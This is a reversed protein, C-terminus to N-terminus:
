AIKKRRRWWGLLGGSVLILGPLGAGAIPGPVPNYGLAELMQFEPSATTFPPPGPGFPPTCIAWSQIECPGIPDGLNVSTLFDGFDGRSDQNFQATCTAGGDVSLCPTSSSLTDYSKMHFGSYRYLDTSGFFGQLGARNLTSGQGGGGLIEDIEHQWVSITTVFSPGVTITGDSPVGTNIGLVKLQAATLVMSSGPGGNGFQLNALATGLTQNEPHAAFDQSLLGTYGSYGVGFLPANSEGGLNPDTTTKFLINVTASNSFQSAIQNTGSQIVAEIAAANPDSTISSDYIPNIDLARVPTVTLGIAVAVSALPLKSKLM